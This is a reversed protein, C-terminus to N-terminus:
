AAKYLIEQPNVLDQLYFEDSEKLGVLYCYGQSQIILLSKLHQDWSHQMVQLLSEEDNTSTIWKYEEGQELNFCSWNVPVDLVGMPTSFRLMQIQPIFEGRMFSISYDKLKRELDCFNQVSSEHLRFTEDVLFNLFNSKSM